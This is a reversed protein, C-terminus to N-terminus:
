ELVWAPASRNGLQYTWAEPPIDSLTTVSDILVSKMEKSAKLLVKPPQPDAGDKPLKDARQLPWPTVNEFGTHLDM